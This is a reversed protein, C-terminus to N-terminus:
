NKEELILSPITDKNLRDKTRQRYWTPRETIAAPWKTKTPLKGLWTKTHPMSGPDEYQEVQDTLQAASHMASLWRSKEWTQKSSQSYTATKLLQSIIRLHPNLPSSWLFFDLYCNKLKLSQYQLTCFSSGTKSHYHMSHGQNIYKSIIKLRKVQINVTKYSISLYVNTNIVSDM